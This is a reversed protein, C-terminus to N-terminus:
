IEQDEVVRQKYISPDENQSIWRSLLPVELQYETTGARVKERKLIELEVLRELDSDLSDTMIGENGLHERLLDFTVRENESLQDVVCILYRRRDNGAEDWLHRFHENDRVLKQAATNVIEARVTQEDLDDCIKFVRHCLAQILFPQRACIRVIMKSAEETYRIQGRVPDKVLSKAAPKSLARVSIQHGIGYLASYKYERLRKIRRSGTIVGSFGEQDHFLARLNEPVTQRTLGSDIGELVKDFEDLMLLFAQEKGVADRAAEAIVQLVEFTSSESMFWPKVEDLLRKRVVFNKESPEIPDIDPIGVHCGEGHASFIVEKAIHYFIEGTELGAKEQTGSANQFNCYVPIWKSPLVGPRQLRKLISTKGTRRNGELLLVTNPGKEQLSGRIERIMDERGKFMEPRDQSDIPTAVVYPNEGIGGRPDTDLEEGRETVEYVAEEKGRIIEGDFRKGRWRVFFHHQGLEENPVDVELSLSEGPQLLDTRGSEGELGSGLADGKDAVEVVGARVDRVTLSSDNLLRVTLVSPGKQHLTGPEVAVDLDTKGHIHHRLTKSAWALVMFIASTRMEISRSFEKDKERLRSLDIRELFLLQEAANEVSAAAQFNELPPIISGAWERVSENESGAKRNKIEEMIQGLQSTMEELASTTDEYKLHAIDNRHARLEEMASSEKLLNIIPDEERRGSLIALIEESDPGSKTETAVRKQLNKPPIPIKLSRFQTIRLHEITSGTVHGELWQQYLSSSLLRQVYSGLVEEEPRVVHVGDTVFIGEQDRPVVSVRGITGSATVLVDGTQLRKEPKLKSAANTKLRTGSPELYGDRVGGVRLFQIQGEGVEKNEELLDDSRYKIGSFVQAIERIEVVRGGKIESRAEELFQELAGTGTPRPTLNYDRETLESRSLKFVHEGIRDGQGAGLPPRGDHQDVIRRASEEDVLSSEEDENLPAASSAEPSIFWVEDRPSGRSIKLVASSISTYPEFVKEPLGVVTDLSYEDVLLERLERDSGSRFLTGDPVVVVARGGPRLANVAHQVFLNTQDRTHIPFHKSDRVDETYRGGFPPNALVLDFGEDKEWVSKPNTGLADACLLNPNSAGSLIARTAGVVHLVRNIEVGFLSPAQDGTRGDSSHHARAFGKALFGGTGYCPDYITEGGTPEALDLILEAVSGPTSYTGADKSRSSIGRLLVEFSERLMERGRDSSLDFSSVWAHLNRVYRDRSSVSSLSIDPVSKELHDRDVRVGRSRLAEALEKAQGKKRFFDDVLADWTDGGPLFIQSLPGSDEVHNLDEVHTVWHALIVVSLPGLLETFDDLGVQGRVRDFLRWVHDQIQTYREEDESLRFDGFPDKLM